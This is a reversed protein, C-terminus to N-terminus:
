PELRKLSEAISNRRIISAPSLIKPPPALDQPTLVDALGFHLPDLGLDLAPARALM